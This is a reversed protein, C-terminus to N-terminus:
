NLQIREGWPVAGRGKVLWLVPFPPPSSPFDGEADTFYILVDPRLRERTLWDFVPSFNTGGGGSLKKPLAIPEWPQAVWPGEAALADDCAHVTVRARVQGKLADIEAIFERLETEGISGSTDLVVYVELQGSHLRPLLAQGERRAPRQFSYDDRALTALYRALLMRWPMKPELLGGLARQWSTGLRGAQQAQQAAAALRMQWTQALAEMSPASVEAVQENGANRRAHSGADSWMEDDSHYPSDAGGSSSGADGTRQLAQKATERDSGGGGDFVHQDMTREQTEFAILPYIEEASLGRFRLELLAGTPASLGEDVLLMNVAHDCAVDWRSRVRHSRRAFHGLACHMAAHALVFQTEGFSLREIYRPNFYIKRADTAISACWSVPEFPLHLVLAGIFPKDLILRTRAARLKTEIRACDASIM